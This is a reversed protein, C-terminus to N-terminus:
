LLPLPVPTAVLTHACSLNRLLSLTHAALTLTQAGPSHMPCRLRVTHKVFPSMGKRHTSGGHKKGRLPTCSLTLETPDWDDDEEGEEEGEKGKTRMVGRGRCTGKPTEQVASDLGSVPGMRKDGAPGWADHAGGTGAGTAAGGPPINEANEDHGRTESLGSKGGQGSEEGAGAVVEAEPGASSTKPLGLNPGGLDLSSLPETGPIPAYALARRAPSIAEPELVKRPTSYVSGSYSSGGPAVDGGKRGGKGSGPAKGMKGGGSRHSGEGWAGGRGVSRGSADLGGNSRSANGGFGGNPAGFPSRPIGASDRQAAASNPGLPSRPVTNSVDWLAVRRPTTRVPGPSAPPDVLMASSGFAHDKSGEEQGGTRDAVAGADRM